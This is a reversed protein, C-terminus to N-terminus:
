LQSFGERHSLSPSPYESKAHQLPIGYHETQNFLRAFSVPDFHPFYLSIEPAIVVMSEGQKM